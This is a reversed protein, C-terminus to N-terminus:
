KHRIFIKLMIDYMGDIGVKGEKKSAQIASAELMTAQSVTESFPNSEFRTNNYVVEKKKLSSLELQKDKSM